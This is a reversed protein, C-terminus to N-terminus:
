TIKVFITLSNDDIRKNNKKKGLFTLIVLCSILGLLIYIFSESSIAKGFVADLNIPDIPYKRSGIIRVVARIWTPYEM